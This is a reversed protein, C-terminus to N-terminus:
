NSLVLDLEELQQELFDKRELMRRYSAAALDAAKQDGREAAALCRDRTVEMSESLQRISTELAEHRQTLTPM